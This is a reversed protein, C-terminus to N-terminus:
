GEQWLRAIGDRKVSILAYPTLKPPANADVRGITRWTRKPDDREWLDIRCWDEFRPAGRKM